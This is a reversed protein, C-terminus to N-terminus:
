VDRIVTGVAETSAEFLSVNQYGSDEDTTLPAFFTEDKLSPINGENASAEELFKRLQSVTAARSRDYAANTTTKDVVEGNLEYNGTAKNKRPVIHAQPDVVACLKSSMGNAWDPAAHGAREPNSYPLVCNIFQTTGQVATGETGVVAARISIEFSGELKGKDITRLKAGQVVWQYLGDQMTKKNQGTSKALDKESFTNAIADVNPLVM